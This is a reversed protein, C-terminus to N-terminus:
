IKTKSSTWEEELVNIFLQVAPSIIGDPFDYEEAHLHPHDRGAGIGTLATDSIKSFHGFDESWPFPYETEEVPIDARAAAKLVKEICEESNLTAVFPENEFHSVELNEKKALEEAKNIIKRKMHELVDDQVARITVGMEARGPSTGFTREGLRIFTVTPIFYDPSSIDSNVLEQIYRIFLSLMNAPNRGQGPYAAHSSVGYLSFELGTSASAFPGKRYYLKGTELGPLNHFAYSRDIRNNEFFSSMLMREAGEGTEESPQFLILVRGKEPRNQGLHRAVGMMVAMHGDHGCSHAVGAHVSKHERDGEERIPLADLESRFMIQPGEKDDGYVAIIGRGGIDSELHDPDTKKLESLIYSATKEEKGSHEPHQHLHHRLQELYQLESSNM